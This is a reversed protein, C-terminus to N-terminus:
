MKASAGRRVRRGWHCAQFRNSSGKVVGLAVMTIRRRRWEGNGIGCESNRPTGWEERLSPHPVFRPSGWEERRPAVPLEGALTQPEVRRPARSGWEKRLLPHPVFCSAVRLESSM